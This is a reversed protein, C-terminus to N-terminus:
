VRETTAEHRLQGLVNVLTEVEQAGALSYTNQFVFFPVVRTGMQEARAIDARADELHRESALAREVDAREFGLEDAIDLLVDLHGIHKGMAFHARFVAAAADAQQGCTKAYHLLQHAKLTNAQQIDPLSYPLGAEATMQILPQSKQELDKPPIGRYDRFFEANSAEYDEPLDPVLQFSHYEIDTPIMSRAVAAAIRSTAIYSFPCVFDVWIDVKIPLNSM